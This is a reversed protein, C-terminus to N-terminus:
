REIVQAKPLKIVYGDHTRIVEASRLSTWGYKNATYPPNSIDAMDYMDAVTVFDYQEIVNCMEDLVAEAGGRTEFLIDDYDFRTRAPEAVRGSRPNDYYRGYSVKSGSGRGATYTPTGGNLIMDITSLITKKITPVLVDMLLYDKVNKVDDSIFVGAFKSIESKKKIKTGGQVVKEIKREEAERQQEKYRHSNPRIESMM